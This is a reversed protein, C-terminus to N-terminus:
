CKKYNLANFVITDELGNEKIYETMIELYRNKLDLHM